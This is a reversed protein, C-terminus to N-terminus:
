FMGHENAMEDPRVQVIDWLEEILGDRFRFLHVAAMELDKGERSQGLRSHVAVFDGDRLVHQIEFIKNPHSEASEQMGKRLAAADGPFYPNHHRFEPSIHRAYAQAVRGSAADRLFGTAIAKLDLSGASNM